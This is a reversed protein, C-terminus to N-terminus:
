GKDANILSLYRDPEKIKIRDFQKSGMVDFVCCHCRGCNQQQALTRSIWCYYRFILRGPMAAGEGSRDFSNSENIIPLTCVFCSSHSCHTLQFCTFYYNQSSLAFTRIRQRKSFRNGPIGFTCNQYAFFLFLYGRCETRCPKHAR